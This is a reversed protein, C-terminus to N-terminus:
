CYIKNLQQIAATSSSCSTTISTLLNPFCLPIEDRTILIIHLLSGPLSARKSARREPAAVPNYSLHRSAFVLFSVLFYFLRISEHGQCTWLASGRRWNIIVASCQVLSLLEETVKSKEQSRNVAQWSHRRGRFTVTFLLCFRSCQHSLRYRKSTGLYLDVFM